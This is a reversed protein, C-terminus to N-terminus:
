KVAKFKTGYSLLLQHQLQRIAWKNETITNCEDYSVEQEEISYIPNIPHLVAKQANYFM